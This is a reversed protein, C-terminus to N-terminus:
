PPHSAHWAKRVTAAQGHARLRDALPAFGLPVVVQYGCDVGSQGGRASSALASESQRGRHVFDTCEMTRRDHVPLSGASILSSLRRVLLPHPVQQAPGSTRHAHRGARRGEHHRLAPGLRPRHRAQPCPARGSRPPATPRPWTRWPRTSTPAPLTGCGPQGSQPCSPSSSTRTRASLRPPGPPWARGAALGRSGQRRHPEPTRAKRRIRKGDPAFGLSIVGRRRGPCHRHRAPDACDAGHSRTVCAGSGNLEGLSPVTRQSRGGLLFRRPTRERYTSSPAM